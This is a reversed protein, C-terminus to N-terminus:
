DGPSAGPRREGSRERPLLAHGELVASAVAVVTRSRSRAHDRLREFAAREGIGHREMLIGKAREILARRELASELREVHAALARAEDHRRLAIEMAGQVSEPTGERAYAYIGREAAKAIFAPEENDLLAIVPGRAFEAIEEIMELAGGHDEYIVVITVDPDEAAVTETARQVGIAMEVVDHGLARVQDAGIRLAGQDEDALLVRLARREGAREAKPM